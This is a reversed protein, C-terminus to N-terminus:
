ARPQPTRGRKCATLEWEIQPVDALAGAKRAQERLKRLHTRVSERGIRLEAACANISYGRRLCLEAVMFLRASLAPRSDLYALLAKAAPTARFRDYAAFVEPGLGEWRDWVKRWIAPTPAFGLSSLHITLTEPVDIFMIVQFDTLEVEDLTM